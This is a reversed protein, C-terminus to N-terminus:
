GSSKEREGNRGTCGESPLKEEKVLSGALKKEGKQDTEADNDVKGVCSRKKNERDMEFKKNMATFFENVKLFKLHVKKDKPVGRGYSSDSMSSLKYFKRWWVKFKVVDNATVRKVKFKSSNEIIENAVNEDSSSVMTKLPGPPASGAESLGAM